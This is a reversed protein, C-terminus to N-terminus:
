PHFHKHVMSLLEKKSEELTLCHDRLEKKSVTRPSTKYVVSPESANTEKERDQKYDM